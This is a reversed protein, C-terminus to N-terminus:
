PETAQARTIQNVPRESRCGCYRDCAGEDGM